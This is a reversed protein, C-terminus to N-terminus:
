EHAAALSQALQSAVNADAGRGAPRAHRAALARHHRRRCDHPLVRRQARRHRAHAGRAQQLHAAGAPDRVQLARRARRISCCSPARLTKIAVQENLQRDHAICWAWAAAASKATIKTAGGRFVEGSPLPRGRMRPTRRARPAPSKRGCRKVTRSGRGRARMTIPWRTSSARWDAWNTTM